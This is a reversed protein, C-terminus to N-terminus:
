FPATVTGHSQDTFFVKQDCYRIGNRGRIQAPRWLAVGFSASLWLAPTYAPNRLAGWAAHMTCCAARQLQHATPLKACRPPPRIARSPLPPTAAAARLRAGGGWGRVQHTPCPAHKHAPARAALCLTQRTGVASRASAQSAARDSLPLSGTCAPTSTRAPATCPPLAMLPTPPTFRVKMRGAYLRAFFTIGLIEGVSSAAREDPV